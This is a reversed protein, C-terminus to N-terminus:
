QLWDAEIPEVLTYTLLLFSFFPFFFKRQIESSLLKSVKFMESLSALPFVDEYHGYKRRCIKV